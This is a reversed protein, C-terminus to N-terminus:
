YGLNDLYNSQFDANAKELIAACDANEDTLVAQICGDLTVYLEQACVPEEAQIDAPCDAVFDNYLKVHNINSNAYEDIMKPCNDPSEDDVLIIEIDKLTQIQISEVCKPLYKEVNYIPVVVSVKIM